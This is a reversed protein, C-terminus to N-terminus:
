NPKKSFYKIIAKEDNFTQMKFQGLMALFDDLEMVKEKHNLSFELESNKLKEKNAIVFIKCDEINTTYTGGQEYICSILSRSFRINTYSLKKSFHFSKKSLKGSPQKKQKLLHVGFLHKTLKSTPQLGKRGLMQVLSYSSYYGQNTNKGKVIKYYSLLGQLDVVLNKCIDQLVLIAARADEDSEHFVFDKNLDHMLKDLAKQEGKYLSYIYQVDIFEFNFNEKNYHKCASNLYNLDNIISFGVVLDAKDFLDKIEQYILDFTPASRFVKEEYALKIGKNGKFNLLTFKKSAPNVIIDKQELINFNEDTLCYGFSCLSAEKSNGNCSEIDFSLIKL